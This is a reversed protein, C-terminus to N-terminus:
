TSPASTGYKSRLTEVGYLTAAGANLYGATRKAKGEKKRARAVDELGAAEDYGEHLRSLAAYEGEAELDGMYNVAGPDALSTGGAAAIARARSVAFRNQRREEAASRQAEGRRAGARRRLAAAEDDAADKAKEGAYISGGAQLATGAIGAWM